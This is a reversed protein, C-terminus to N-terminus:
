NMVSKFVLFPYWLFATVLLLAVVVWAAVGGLFKFWKSLEVSPVNRRKPSPLSSLRRRGVSPTFPTTLPKVTWALRVKTTTQKNTWLTGCGSCFAMM